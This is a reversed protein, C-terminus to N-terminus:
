IGGYNALDRDLKEIRRRLDAIREATTERRQLGADSEDYHRIRGSEYGELLNALREREARWLDASM